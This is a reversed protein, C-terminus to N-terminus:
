GIIIAKNGAEGIKKLARERERAHMSFSRHTQPCNLSTNAQALVAVLVAAWFEIDM